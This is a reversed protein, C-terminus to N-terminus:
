RLVFAPVATAVTATPVFNFALKAYSSFSSASVPLVKVVTKKNFDVPKGDFLYSLANVQSKYYDTVENNNFSITKTRNLKWQGDLNGDMYNGVVDLTILNKMFIDTSAVNNYIFRWLGYKNDDKFQGNISVSNVANKFVFSGNFIRKDTEELYDYIVNGQFNKTNFSGNYTKTQGFSIQTTAGAILLLGFLTKKM